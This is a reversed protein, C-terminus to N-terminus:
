IRGIIVIYAISVYKANRSAELKIHGKLEAPMKDPLHNTDNYFNPYWNYIKNLKLFICPASDGYKYDNSAICPSWQNPDIVCTEENAPLRDYDCIKKNPQGAQM